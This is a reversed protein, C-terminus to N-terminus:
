QSLAPALSFSQNKNIINKHCYSSKLKSQPDYPMTHVNGVDRWAVHCIAQNHNKSILRGLGLINNHVKFVIWLFIHAVYYTKVSKSM